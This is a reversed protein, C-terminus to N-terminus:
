ARIRTRLRRGKRRSIAKRTLAKRTLPYRPGIRVSQNTVEWGHRRFADAIPAYDREDLPSGSKTGCYVHREELDLFIPYEHLGDYKPDDLAKLAEFGIDQSDPGRKSKLVVTARTPKVLVGKEAHTSLRGILGLGSTASVGIGEVDLKSNEGTAGTYHVSATRYGKRSLALLPTRLNPKPM